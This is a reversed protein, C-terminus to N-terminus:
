AVIVRLFIQTRNRLAANFSRGLAFLYPTKQRFHSRFIPETELLRDAGPTLRVIELFAEECAQICIRQEPLQPLNNGARAVM